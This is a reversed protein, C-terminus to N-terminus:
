ENDIGKQPLSIVFETGVGVESNVEILGNHKKVIDYVLSLGLGTGKGVEKTTYFPEFIKKMNEPPIGKGNDKISIYIQGNEFWSKIKILGGDGEIAHGANVLINMFVQNIQNPYCYIDPLEGFEKEVKCNYKLENWVINLTSEIGENLNVAEKDSKDVRSFSKLDAVIKKVRNTGDVSEEIADKFDDIIDKIDDRDDEDPENFFASIKKLYKAMTNLNSNIFGIPNNIEHAVGAALTGIAALKDAQILKERGMHLETVDQTLGVVGSIKGHNDHIPVKTTTFWKKEGLVNTMSEEHKIVTENTKMVKIDDEHNTDAKEPPFIDYDTKGRIENLGKGVFQCFAENVIIYRHEIDKLYMMVPATNIMSIYQSIERTFAEERAVRESIDRVFGIAHWKGSKNLSSISIEIPFENGEKNVASMELTTGIVSGEGTQVFKDFGKKFSAFLDKPMVKEHFQQDLVEESTYGFINYAAQNWFTTKGEHDLMVIADTSANSIINFKEESDRLEKEIEKRETINAGFCYIHDDEQNYRFTFLYTQENIQLELQRNKKKLLELDRQKDDRKFLEFLNMQYIEAGWFELSFPNAFDIQGDATARLVPGPNMHVMVLEPRNELIETSNNISM